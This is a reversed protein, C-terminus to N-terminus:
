HGYVPSQGTQDFNPLTAPQLCYRNLVATAHSFGLSSAKQWDACALTLQQQGFYAIGRNYYAEAYSPNIKIAKNFDAIAGIADLNRAKVIGRNNLALLYSSNRSLSLGYYKLAEDNEGSNDYFNGLYFYAHSMDADSRKKEIVDTLLIPTNQWVSIRNITLVVMVVAVLIGSLTLLSQTSNELQRRDEYLNLLLSSIILFLGIYPIYTYRDAVIFIRSWFLPLVIGISLLFFLSGFIVLHRHRKSYFWIIPIVVLALLSVYVWAPFGVTSEPFAYVASLNVPFVLKILYFSISYVILVFREFLNYNQELVTIHGFSTSAKIAVIGFIISLIFFPLKELVVRSTFKRNRLFDALLLILPFTAAMSKSFLAMLAWLLTLMYHKTSNSNLYKEYQILGALFFVSYVLSSRTSIWIVGEVHMPHMAFLFTTLLALSPRKFWLNVLSYVLFCNLLHLFINTLIYAPAWDGSILYNFAFSLVALPQYMGLHFNTFISSEGGQWNVVDPHTIYVGDDWGTLVEHSLSGSFVFFTIVLLAFLLSSPTRLNLDKWYSKSHPNLQNSATQRYKGAKQM